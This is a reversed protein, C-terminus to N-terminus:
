DDNDPLGGIYGGSQHEWLKVYIGNKQRLLQQHSGIQVVKGKDMVIIRDMLQITSLRHAIVLSTHDEILHWLAEQILKESRSDLASTAEDLVLIPADKLIARAIAIRQRQGGSLKVGREGVITQYRKPLGDIFEDAYALKAATRIQKYSASLGGYAINDSITRNFLLPEQPVYAIKKRIVQQQMDRIDIGNITISGSTVDMFRLLLKTLTTKGSGSYGVLGVKEGANVELDLGSIANTNKSADEYHYTVDNFNISLKHTSPFKVTPDKDLVKPEIMMTTLPQYASSMTTEYSKIIEAVDQTVSVMKVIYLQALAVIAISIVHHEYMNSTFVLLTATAIAALIMRGADAPLSSVWSIYQAKAWITFTKNLREIENDEAAFSKVTSAHSLADGIIGSLESDAQGLIRRYKLRWYSGLLTFCLILGVTVITVTALLLSHYGIIIIGAVIITLQKPLQLTFLQGYVNFADRIRSAQGSLAGLYINSYFEYDKNLYNSFIRKQLYELGRIANRSIALGGLTWLISYGLSLLFVRVAYGEVVSFDRLVIAQIGYAIQVPILVNYLVNAPVRFLYCAILTQKDVWNAQWFLRHIARMVMKDRHTEERIM